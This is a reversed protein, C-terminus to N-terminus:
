RCVRAMTHSVHHNKPRLRKEGGALRDFRRTMFHRRNNEEYLKCESMIIGCARAMLYYSYEILGFGKPDELEKDKNGAVGDFKLIWYEFDEGVAIQGSRIENTKPNWAIVAEARAGGASTGVRLIDKLAEAHHGDNFNDSFEGHHTLVDSALKVLSDIEIKKANPLAPGVQPVFELAGM